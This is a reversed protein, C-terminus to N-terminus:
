GYSERLFCDEKNESSNWGRRQAGRGLGQILYDSKFLSCLEEVVSRMCLKFLPIESLSLKMEFHLTFNEITSVGQCGGMFAKGEGVRETDEPDCLFLRRPSGVHTLLVLFRAYHLSM